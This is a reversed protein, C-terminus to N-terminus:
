LLNTSKHRSSRRYTAESSEYAISRFRQGAELAQKSQPPAGGGGGRNMMLDKWIMTLLIFFAGFIKNIFEIIKFLIPTATHTFRSLEFLFRLTFIGLFRLAVVAGSLASFILLGLFRITGVINRKNVDNAMFDYITLKIGDGWQQLVALFDSLGIESQRQNETGEAAAKPQSTALNSSSARMDKTTTAISISRTQQLETEVPRVMKLKLSVEQDRFRLTKISFWYEGFALDNLETWICTDLQSPHPTHTYSGMNGKTIGVFMNPVFRQYFLQLKSASSLLQKELERESRQLAIVDRYGEVQDVYCRGIYFGRFLRSKYLQKILSQMALEEPPMFRAEGGGSRMSVISSEGM